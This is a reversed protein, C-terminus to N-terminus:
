VSITPLSRTSAPTSQPKPVFANAGLTAVLTTHDFNFDKASPASIAEFRSQCQAFAGLSRQLRKKGWTSLAIVAGPTEATAAWLVGSSAAQGTKQMASPPALSDSQLRTM